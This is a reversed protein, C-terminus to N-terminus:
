GADYVSYLYFKFKLMAAIMSFGADYLTPLLAM